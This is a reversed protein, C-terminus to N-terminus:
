DAYRGIPLPSTRGLMSELGALQVAGHGVPSGARDEIVRLGVPGDDLALHGARHFGGVDARLALPVAGARVGSLDVAGYCLCLYDREAATSLYLGTGRVGIVSGRTLLQGAAEEPRRGFVAVVSGRILRAVSVWAADGDLARMELRSNAPLLFADQGVAFVAEGGPGTSVTDDAGIRAQKASSVARGNIWVRGRLRCVAKSSPGDPCFGRGAAALRGSLSLAAACCGARLFGRRDARALADRGGLSPGNLPGDSPM